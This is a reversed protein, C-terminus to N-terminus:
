YTHLVFMFVSLFVAFFDTYQQAQVNHIQIKTCEQQIHLQSESMGKWGNLLCLAKPLYGSSYPKVGNLQTM